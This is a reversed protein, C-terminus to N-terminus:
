PVDCFDWKCTVPTVSAQVGSDRLISAMQRLGNNYARVAELAIPIKDPLGLVEPFRQVPGLTSLVIQM